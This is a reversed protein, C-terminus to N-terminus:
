EMETVKADTEDMKNRMNGIAQEDHGIGEERAEPRGVQIEEQLPSVESTHSRAEPM